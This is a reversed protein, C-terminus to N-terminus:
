EVVKLKGVRYKTSNGLLYVILDVSSYRKTVPAEGILALSFGFPISPLNFSFNLDKGVCPVSLSVKTDL